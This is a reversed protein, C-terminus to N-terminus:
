YNKMPTTIKKTLKAAPCYKKKGTHAVNASTITARNFSSEATDANNKKWAATRDLYRMNQM